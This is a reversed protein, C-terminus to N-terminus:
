DGFDFNLKSDESPTHYGHEIEYATKDVTEEITRTLKEDQYRVFRDAEKKEQALGEYPRCGTVKLDEQYERENRIIVGPRAPSEFADFNRISIMPGKPREPEGYKSLWERIPIMKGTERCQRYSGRKVGTDGFIRELGQKYEQSNGRSKIEDGTIANRTAM